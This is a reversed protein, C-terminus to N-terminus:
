QAPKLDFSYARVLSGLAVVVKGPTIVLRSVGEPYDPDELYTKVSRSGVTLYHPGKALNEVNWIQVQSGAANGLLKLSPSLDLLSVRTIQKGADPVFANETGIM